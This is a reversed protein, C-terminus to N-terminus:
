IYRIEIGGLSVNGSLTLTPANDSLITNNTRNEIGGLFVRLNDKVKWSRPVHLEIAGFSCDFFFEAGDPHLQAQDMFIELAGFAVSFHGSQIEKGHLYNSCGGFRVHANPNNDDTEEKSLEGDHHFNIFASHHKKKFLICCGITLLLAAVLLIWISIEPLHLINQETLPKQYIYYLLAIPVFIGFFELSVVSHIFVAAILVTLIITWTDITLFSAFQSAIVFVAALLFYLGWFLNRHKKM